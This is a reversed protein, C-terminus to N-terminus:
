RGPEVREGHFRPGPLRALVYAGAERADAAILRAEALLPDRWSTELAELQRSVSTELRAIAPMFARDRDSVVPGPRLTMSRLVFAGAALLLMLGFAQAYTALLLRPPAAGPAADPPAEQLAALTRRRLGSPPAVWASEVDAALRREVALGANLNRGPRRLVVLRGLWRLM